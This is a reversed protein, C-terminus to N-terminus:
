WFVASSSSSNGTPKAAKRQKSQLFSSFSSMMDLSHSTPQCTSCVGSENILRLLLRNSGEGWHGWLSSSYGPLNRRGKLRPKHAHTRTHTHTHTHADAQPHTDPKTRMVPMAPCSTSDPDMQSILAVSWGSMRLSTGLCQRMGRSLSTLDAVNKGHNAQYKGTEDILLSQNYILWTLLGKAIPSSNSLM